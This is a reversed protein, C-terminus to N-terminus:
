GLFKNSQCSYAKGTEFLLLQDTTAPVLPVSSNLDKNTYGNNVLSQTELSYFNPWTFLADQTYTSVTHLTIKTFSFDASHTKRKLTFKNTTSDVELGDFGLM